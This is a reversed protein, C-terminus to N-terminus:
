TSGDGLKHLGHISALLSEVDPGRSAPAPGRPDAAFPNGLLVDFCARVSWALAKLDYGGELSFVIRGGCLEEAAQRLMLALEYYGACSLSMWALPDAFHGDFGASVLILQPRFRRLAPLLVTQFARRYQQDGSDMPLPVNVTFGLGPGTGVERWSGTGPYLPSEHTSCYLVTPDKYFADQSGNGHHVDFDAIAVRELGRRAIAHRAAIAVNNFLCFGMAHGPTAHHGPPRVLCFASDIEGALVADTARLCGGAARLAAEYSRSSVATDMDLAREGAEIRERVWRIMEPRHVLELDAPTADDAAIPTLASRLGSEELLALIAQLREAKEPHDDTDHELYLPDYVLGVRAV